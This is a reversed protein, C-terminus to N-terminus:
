RFPPCQAVPGSAPVSGALTGGLFGLAVPRSHCTFLHKMWISFRTAALPLTWLPVWPARPISALHVVGRTLTLALKERLFFKVRAGPPCQGPLCGLAAIQIRWECIFIDV